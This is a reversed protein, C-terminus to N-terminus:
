SVLSKHNRSFTIPNYSRVYIFFMLFCISSVCVTFFIISQIVVIVFFTGSLILFESAISLQYCDLLLLLSRYYCPKLLWSLKHRIILCNILVYKLRRVFSQLLITVMRNTSMMRFMVVVNESCPSM